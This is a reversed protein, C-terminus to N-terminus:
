KHGRTKIKGYAATKIANDRANAAREVAERMKSQRENAKQMIRKQAAARREVETLRREARAVAAKAKRDAREAARALPTAGVYPGYAREVTALCAADIATTDRINAPASTSTERGSAERVIGVASPNLKAERLLERRLTYYYIDRDGDMKLDVRRDVTALARIEDRALIGDPNYKVIGGSLQEVVGARYSEAIAGALAPATKARASEVAGARIEVIRVKAM